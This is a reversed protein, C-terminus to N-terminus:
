ILKSKVQEITDTDFPTPPPAPTDVKREIGVLAQYASIDVTLADIQRQWEGQPSANALQRLIEETDSLPPLKVWQSIATLRNDDPQYLVSFGKDADFLTIKQTFTFM